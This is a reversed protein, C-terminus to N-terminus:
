LMTPEGERFEFEDTRSSCATGTSRQKCLYKNNQTNRLTIWCASCNRGSSQTKAVLVDASGMLSMAFAELRGCFTTPM